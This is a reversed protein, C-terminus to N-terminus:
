GLFADGYKELFDDYDMSKKGRVQHYKKVMEPFYTCDYRYIYNEIVEWDFVDNIDAMNWCISDNNVASELELKLPIKGLLILGRNLWYLLNPFGSVINIMKDIDKNAMSQGHWNKNRYKWAQKILTKFPEILKETPTFTIKNTKIDIKDSNWEQYIVEPHLMLPIKERLGKAIYQDDRILTELCRCFRSLRELPEEIQMAIAYYELFSAYRKSDDALLACGSEWTAHLFGGLAEAEMETILDFDETWWDDNFLEGEFNIMVPWPSISFHRWSVNLNGRIRIQPNFGGLLIILSTFIPVLEPPSLKTKTWKYMPRESIFRETESPIIELECVFGSNMRRSRSEIWRLAYYHEISECMEKLEVDTYTEDHWWIRMGPFIEIWQRFSGQSDKVRPFGELLYFAAVVPESEMMM